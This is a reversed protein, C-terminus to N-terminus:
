SRRTSWFVIAVGVAAGGAAWVFPHAWVGLPAPYTFFLAFATWFGVFGGVLIAVVYSMVKRITM